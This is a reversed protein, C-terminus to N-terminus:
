DNAPEPLPKSRGLAAMAQAWREELCLDLLADGSELVCGGRAIAASPLLRVTTPDGHQELCSRIMALDDPHCRCTLDGAVDRIREIGASIVSAIVGPDTAITHDVVKRALAVCMDTLQDALRLEIRAMEAQASRTLQDLREAFEAGLRAVEQQRVQELRRTARAEGQVLGEALGQARGEALARARAQALQRDIEEDSPTARRTPDIRPLRFAQVGTIEEAPMVKRRSGPPSDSM